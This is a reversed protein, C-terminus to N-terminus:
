RPRIPQADITDVRIGGTPMETSIGSKPDVIWVHSERMNNDGYVALASGSRAWVLTRPAFGPIDLLRRRSLDRISLTDIHSDENDSGTHYGVLLSSGDLSWIMSHLWDAGIPRALVQRTQNSELDWFQLGSRPSGSGQGCFALTKGDPSLCPGRVDDSDPLLQRMPGGAAPVVSLGPSLVSAGHQVYLLSGDSSWLLDVIEGPFAALEREAGGIEWLLITSFRAKERYFALSRGDPSIRPNIGEVPLTRREATTINWVQFTETRDQGNGKWVALLLSDSWDIAAQGPRRVRNSRRCTAWRCCRCNV